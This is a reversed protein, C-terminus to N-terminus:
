LTSTSIVLKTQRIGAILLVNLTKQPTLSVTLVQQNSNDEAHIHKDLKQTYFPMGELSIHRALKKKKTNDERSKGHVLM